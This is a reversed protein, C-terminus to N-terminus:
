TYEPCVHVRDVSVVAASRVLCAVLLGWMLGPRINLAPAVSVKAGLLKSYGCGTVTVASPEPLPLVVNVTVAATYAERLAVASSYL